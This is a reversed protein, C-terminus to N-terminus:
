SGALASEAAERVFAAEHELLPAALDAIRGEFLKGALTVALAALWPDSHRVLQRLADEFTLPSAGFHARGREALEHWTAAEILPMLLTRERGSFVNGLYELAAARVSPQANQIRDWATKLEAPPYILGLLRFILEVSLALRESLAKELLRHSPLEANRATIGVHQNALAVLQGTEHELLRDVETRSFSLHPSRARLKGLAKVGQFHLRRDDQPLWAFLTDVAGPDDFQALVLALAGRVDRPMDGDRLDAAVRELTDGGLRAIAVRAQARLPRRALARILLPYGPRYSLAGMSFAAARAVRIDPDRLLDELHSAEISGRALYGASRAALRRDSPEASQWRAEFFAELESVDVLRRDIEVSDLVADIQDASAGRVYEALARFGRGEDVKVWLALAEAAAGPDPDLVRSAFDDLVAPKPATRLVKYSAARVSPEEHATLETVRELTETDGVGRLLDLAYVIERPDDRGLMERLVSLGAPDRLTSALDSIDRRALSKQFTLLYERRLLAVVGIWPILLAVVVVSIREPALALVGTAFLITLGAVGRSVREVFMDLWTKLRNKVALAIPLYLVEVSARNVSNSLGDDFSKVLAATLLRPAALFAVSSALLSAPLLILGAGVGFWSLLRGVVVLQVFFAAVNIAAFFAGFFGTLSDMTDFSAEVITNFQFDILTSTMTTLFILAALLRLYRSSSVLAWPSESAGSVGTQRSREERGLEARRETMRTKEQAAGVRVLVGVLVLPMTASLLLGETGVMPVLLRTLAGGGISGLLGGAMVIPFLRRGENSYFVYNAMLWFLSPMLATVISVWVYFVFGTAQWAGVTALYFLVLNSAFFYATREFLIPLQFSGTWRAFVVAVVAMVLAVLIYVYPLRASGFQSLFLASRVPKLVYSTAIILGLLVFMTAVRRREEPRVDLLEALWRTM